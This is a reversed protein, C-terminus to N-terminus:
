VGREITKIVRRIYSDKNQGLIQQAIFGLSDKYQISLRKFKIKKVRQNESIVSLDGNEIPFYIREDEWLIKCGLSM